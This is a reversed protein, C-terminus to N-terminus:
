RVGEDLDILSLNYPIEGEYAPTYARHMTVTSYVTGKGSVPTWTVEAALCHPCFEKPPFFFQSCAQCQQIRMQHSKLHEWCPSAPRASRGRGPRGRVKGGSTARCTTRKAQSSGSWTPRESLWHSQASSARCASRSPTTACRAGWVTWRM